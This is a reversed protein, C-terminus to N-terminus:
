GFVISRAIYSIVFLGILLLMVGLTVSTGAKFLVNDESQIQKRTALFRWTALSIVLCAISILILGLEKGGSVITIPKEDHVAQALYHLFLDFREILFGFAIIAIATRLWALYTRENAAHDSFHPIM